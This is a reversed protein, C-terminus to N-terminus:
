GTSGPLIVSPAGASTPFMAGSNKALAVAQRVQPLTSHLSNGPCGTSMWDRHGQIAQAPRSWGGDPNWYNVGQFPDLSLANCLKALVNVLAGYAGPTPFGQDFNGMLCIGINGSNTGAVHAGIVSDPRVGHPMPGAFVPYGSHTRHGQYVQGSPDIVLQYGIDGWGNTLTHYRHFGRMTSAPDWNAPTVSHHVTLVQAPRYEIAGFSISEDCGWAWRPVVPIGYCDVVPLAAYQAVGPVQRMGQVETGEPAPAQAGATSAYVPQTGQPARVEFGVAGDPTPVPASALGAGADRGHNETGFPTWEGWGGPLAFRVEGLDTSGAPATVGVLGPAEIGQLGTSGTDGLVPQAAATGPLVAAVGAATAAGAAGTLFSRRDLSPM